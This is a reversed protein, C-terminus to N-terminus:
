AAAYDAGLYAEIVRQDSRIQSPTGEAIMEGHDLVVIKDALSMIMDMKHEILCVTLGSRVMKRILEALGLTEEPNVGGAPEDLLVIKPDTALAM